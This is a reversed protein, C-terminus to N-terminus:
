QLEEVRAKVSAPKRLRSVLKPLVDLVYDVDEQTTDNGLSFRVTSNLLEYPLGIATLVHSPEIKKTSCASGTSAFIKNESLLELLAEAEVGPFALSANTPLRNTPHGNLVVEPIRERIGNILKDRLFVLKATKQEKNKSSLELAKAFGVIAPVNETGSRLGFEQKGGHLIPHLFVHKRKFLVGIGKPGNIKSGNLSMLDVGLRAVDVDLLGGAQCADTHFVVNHKKAIRSLEPIPNVSGVENNAYIVSALITNPRIAKEFQEPTVLGYKNVPLLTTEFGEHERLYNLTELVAPHEANTSIVHKGKNKLARAIGKLALNISETGSSTFIIEEASCNLVRAVVNRSREVAERARRGEAHSSNPNAFCEEFYPMMAKRVESLLPTTAANDLYVQKM